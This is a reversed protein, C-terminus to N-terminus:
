PAIPTTRRSIPGPSPLEMLHRNAVRLRGSLLILLRNSVLSSQELLRLFPEAPIFYAVVPTAATATASRPEGDLVGMEGLVENARVQTLFAEGKENTATVQVNGDLILYLGAAEDGEHLIVDGAAFRQEQGADLAPDLLTPPVNAVLWHERVAM